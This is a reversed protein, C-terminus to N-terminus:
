YGHRRFYEAPPLILGGGFRRGFYQGFHQKDGTLLHTARVHLAAQLIPQDKEPLSVERPLTSIGTVIRVTELLKTLRQQQERESLNVRAEEAAYASTLLEVNKFKWLRAIGTDPQYAASFLVNADLFLRDM